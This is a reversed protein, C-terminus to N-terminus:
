FRNIETPSAFRLYKKGEQTDNENLTSIDEQPTDDTWERGTDGENWRREIDHWMVFGLHYPNLGGPHPRLVQNHRVLFELHMGQPLNLENLIKHHWYSAWGENM